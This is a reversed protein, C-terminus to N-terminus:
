VRSAKNIHSPEKVRGFNPPYHLVSATKMPFKVNTRKHYHSPKKMNIQRSQYNLPLLFQIKHNQCNEHRITRTLDTIM